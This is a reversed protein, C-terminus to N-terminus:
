IIETSQFSERCFSHKESETINSAPRASIPDPLRGSDDRPSVLVNTGCEIVNKAAFAQLLAEGGEGAGDFHNSM